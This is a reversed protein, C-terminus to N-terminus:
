FVIIECSRYRMRPCARVATQKLNFVRYPHIKCKNIYPKYCIAYRQTQTTFYSYDINCKM